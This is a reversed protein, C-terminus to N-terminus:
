RWTYVEYYKRFYTHLHNIHVSNLDCHIFDDGNLIVGIHVMDGKNNAFLVVDGAKPTTTKYVKKNMQKIIKPANETFSSDVSYEYVADDLKHGFRREVEIALGYCDFGDSISRGHNVFPVGILDSLEPINNMM